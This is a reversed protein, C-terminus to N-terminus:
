INKIINVLEDNQLIDNLLENTFREGEKITHRGCSTIAEAININFYRSYPVALIGFMANLVIKIAWQLSFLQQIRESDPTAKKIERMEKKVEKRKAYINREVTSIVGPETTSFISGCPAIAVLGREVIKNFRELKSYEFTKYGNNTMMEFRPFNHNKTHYIIDSEQINLIRGVYTEISMNLTIIHSPYSSAIDIDIVWEHMGKIPEKVYAAPFYEQTGGLLCPACLDNRRFYTLMAGEILNTMTNYYKMPCKTLLSLAQVLKIYGLKNELDQILTCDKINYEVYKDWNNHYLKMLSEYETFDVKGEGLEFKAVFDLKYSELNNPSYWKYLDMFDLITVGAIDVKMEDTKSKWIKVIKIPSLYNWIGSKEGFLKKARNIIYPIDFNYINYGSLVDCPNSYMYKFFQMLLKKENDCHNYTLNKETGGYKKEGFTVIRSDSVLSILVIPAEAKEASPFAGGSVIFNEKNYKKWENTNEDFYEINEKEEKNFTKEIKEVTIYEEKYM